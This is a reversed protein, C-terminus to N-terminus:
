YRLAGIGGGDSVVHRNTKSVDSVLQDCFDNHVSDFGEERSDNAVILGSEEGLPSSSIIGDYNLFEDGM